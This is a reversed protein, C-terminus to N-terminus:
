LKKNNHFYHNKHSLGPEQSTYYRDGRCGKLHYYKHFMKLSAIWCNYVFDPINDQNYISFHRDNHKHLVQYNQIYFNTLIPLRKRTTITLKPYPAYLINLYSSLCLACIASRLSPEEFKELFLRQPSKGEKEKEHFTLFSFKIFDHSQIFFKFIITPHPM